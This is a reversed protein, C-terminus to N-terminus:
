NSLTYFENDTKIVKFGNYLYFNYARNNVKFCKLEISLNTDVMGIIDLLQSGIGKSQYIPQLIIMNIYIHKQHRIYQVYGIQKKDLEIIDTTYEKLSKAFDAQQWDLDWCWIKEVHSKMAKIYTQWIFAHDTSDYSVLEIKM